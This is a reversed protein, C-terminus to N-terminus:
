RDVQVKYHWTIGRKESVGFTVQCPSNGMGMKKIAYQDDSKLSGNTLFEIGSFDFRNVTHFHGTCFYNFPASMLMRLAKEKDLSGEILSNIVSPLIERKMSEISRMRLARTTMGYFPITLHIPIMDGHTILFYHGKIEVIKYISEAEIDIHVNEVELMRIKVVSMAITDWNTSVASERGAPSGHNGPVCHVFVEVYNNALNSLFEVMSPVFHEFIQYYVSCEFEDANVNKGIKEGNVLDGIVFLHIEKVPYLQHHLNRIKLVGNTLNQIRQKCIDANFSKTKVGFHVDSFLLIQAEEKEKKTIRKFKPVTILKPLGTIPKEGDIKQWIAEALLEEKTKKKKQVKLPNYIEETVSVKKKPKLQLHGIDVLNKLISVKTNCTNAVEKRTKNSNWEKLLKQWVKHNKSKKNKAEIFDSSNYLSM